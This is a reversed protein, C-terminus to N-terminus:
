NKNNEFLYEGVKKGLVKCEENSTVGHVSNFFPVIIIKTNVSLHSNYVHGKKNKSFEIEEIPDSFLAEVGGYALLFDRRVSTGSCLIVRPKKAVVMENFKAFRYTKVWGLYLEKTPFGTIEYFERTWLDSSTTKFSIPYLNLKMVKGNKTLAKTDGDIVDKYSEVEKGSAHSLVKMWIRDFKYNLYKKRDELNEFHLPDINPGKAIDALLKEPTVGEGWEIGSIWFKADLNGGDYGYHSLALDEFEKKITYM